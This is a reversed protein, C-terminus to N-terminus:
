NIAYTISTLTVTKAGSATWGTATSCLNSGNNRVVSLSGGVNVSICGNEPVGNNEVFTPALPIYTGSTPRIAAPIDTDSVFTTTDSTCTFGYSSANPDPTLTVINGMKAYSWSGSPTTTCVDPWDLTFTGSAPTMDVGNSDIATADLEILSGDDAIRIRRTNATYLDVPHASISGIKVAVGAEAQILGDITGDGVRYRAGSANILQEASTFTNSMSLRAFDSSAVGDLTISGGNTSVRLEAAAVANRVSLVHDAGVGYGVYGIEALSDNRFSLYTSLTAADSSAQFLTAASDFTNTAGFTNAQSLRAFDSSAVGNLTISTADLDIEDWTTGTRILDIGCVQSAGTDLQSCIQLNGASPKIEWQTEDAAADSETFRLAPNASIIDIPADANTRSLSLSLEGQIAATTVVILSQVFRPIGFFQAGAIAPIALSAVAILFKTSRRM